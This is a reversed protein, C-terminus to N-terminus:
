DEFLADVFSTPDFLAIDQVREGIGIYKIPLGLESSISFVVGGRATGDLKTLIIGSVGADQVFTKAQLIANQGTTADLVLLVEHPAEPDYRALIKVIKKLEEMLNSKTHLRGATDVILVDAKRAQAAEMADFVVAAPDSGHQHSIVQVKLRDGWTKIQEIAAARFTDAAALLVRHNDHKLINTLKAISTTKGVGNIGVVLFVTVDSTESFVLPEPDGLLVQLEEKLAERVDSGREMKEYKARERLTKLLNEAMQIGIDSEILTEELEDWLDDTIEDTSFAANMRSFLGRTRQLGLRFPNFGKPTAEVLEEAEIEEADEVDIDAEIEDSILGPVEADAYESEISEATIDFESPTEASTDYTAEELLEEEVIDDILDEDVEPLVDVSQSNALEEQPPVFLDRLRKFM